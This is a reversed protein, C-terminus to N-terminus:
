KGLPLKVIFVTGKGVESKVSMSGDHSDVISKCIALGLGFGTDKSATGPVRYFREFLHAQAEQPIGQGSDSIKIVASNKTRTLEFDVDGHSPTNKLANELINSFLHMMLGTDAKIMIGQKLRTTFSIRKEDFLYRYVEEVEVAVDSLNITHHNLKFYGEDSKALFLLDNILDEQKELRGLTFSLVQRYEEISKCDDLAGTVSMKMSSLPTKLGHAADSIFRKESDFSVQLRDAMRNFSKALRGIEDDSSIEVRRSMHNETLAEACDAINTIPM